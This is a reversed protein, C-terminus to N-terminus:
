CELTYWLLHPHVALTTQFPFSRSVSWMLHTRVHSSFNLKGRLMIVEALIISFSNWEVDDVSQAHEDVKGYECM